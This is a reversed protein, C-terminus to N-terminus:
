ASEWQDQEAVDASRSPFSEHASSGFGELSLSERMAKLTSQRATVATELKRSHLNLGEIRRKAKRYRTYVSFDMRKRAKALRVDEGPLRAERQEYDDVLELLAEDLKEEYESEADGLLIHAQELEKGLTDLEGAARDLFAIVEAPSPLATM